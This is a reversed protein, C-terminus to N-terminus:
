AQADGVFLPIVSRAVIDAGLEKDALLLAGLLVAVVAAGAGGAGLLVLVDRVHNLRVDLRLYKRALRGAAAYGAAVVAAIALVVPWALGTQLVLIEAIVVGAFLVLSYAAGKLVIMGFAVGLGPNWPTVPLGGYEHIFSMWELVVYTLLLAGAALISPSGPTFKLTIAGLGTALRRSLASLTLM